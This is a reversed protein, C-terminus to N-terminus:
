RFKELLPRWAARARLILEAVERFAGQGGRLRTIYEAYRKVEPHADAVAVPFGALRLCPIDVLDDGLYCMEGAPIGTSRLIAELQPLKAEVGSFHISVGLGEARHRVVSSQRSSLFGVEIGSLKLLTVGMGDRVSFTKCEEGRENLGITGDTLVGDVDSIVLKVEHPPM